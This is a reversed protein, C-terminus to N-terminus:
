EVHDKAKADQVTQWQMNSPEDRGGHKLAQVHDVVYGPCAGSSKGTSPCSHQKEFQHKASESRKIRGRSNRTCSVCAATSRPAHTRAFRSSSARPARVRASSSSARSGSGSMSRSRARVVTGNKRTYSRVHVSKGSSSRSGRSYSPVSLFLCAMLMALLTRM